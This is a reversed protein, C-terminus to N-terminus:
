IVYSSKSQDRIIKGKNLTVVRKQLSDVIERNHTALLITTNNANIKLLLQIIEWANIPDLNGTPEDAILL